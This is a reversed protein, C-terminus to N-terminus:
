ECMLMIDQSRCSVYAPFNRGRSAVDEAHRLVRLYQVLPEIHVRREHHKGIRVIKEMSDVGALLRTMTSSDFFFFTEPIFPAM